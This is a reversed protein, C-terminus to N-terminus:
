PLCASHTQLPSFWSHLIVSFMYVGCLFSRVWSDIRPGEQQSAIKGVVAVSDELWVSYVARLDTKDAVVSQEHPILFRSKIVETRCNTWKCQYRTFIHGEEGENKTQDNELVSVGFDDQFFSRCALALVFSRSGCAVAFRITDTHKNIPFVFLVLQSFCSIDTKRFNFGWNLIKLEKKKKEHRFVYSMYSRATFVSTSFVPRCFLHWGTDSAEREKRTQGESLRSGRWSTVRWTKQMKGRWTGAWSVRLLLWAFCTQSCPLVAANTTLTHKRRHKHRHTIQGATVLSVVALSAWNTLLLSIDPRSYWQVETKLTSLSYQNLFFLFFYIM